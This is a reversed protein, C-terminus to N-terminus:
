FALLTRLTYSNIYIYVDGSFPGVLLMGRIRAVISSRKHGIIDKKKIERTKEAIVLAPM